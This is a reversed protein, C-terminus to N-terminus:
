RPCSSSIVINKLFVRCQGRKGQVLASTVVNSSHPDILSSHVTIHARPVHADARTCTHTTDVCVGTASVATAVPQTRFETEAVLTPFFLFLVATKGTSPSLTSSTTQVNQKWSSNSRHQRIEGTNQGNTTKGGTRTGNRGVKLGHLRVGGHQAQHGARPHRHNHANQSKRNQLNNRGIWAWGNWTSKYHLTMETKYVGGTVLQSKIFKNKEKSKHLNSLEKESGLVRTKAMYTRGAKKKTLVEYIFCIWMDKEAIDTRQPRHQLARHPGLVQGTRGVLWSCASIEQLDWWKAMQGLNFFIDKWRKYCKAIRRSGQPSTAAVPESRM